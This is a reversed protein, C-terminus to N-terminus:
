AKAYELLKPPSALAKGRLKDDLFDAIKCAGAMRDEVPVKIYTLTVDSGNGVHNALAKLM